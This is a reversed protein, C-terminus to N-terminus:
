VSNIEAFDFLPENKLIDQSLSVLFPGGLVTVAQPKRSKIMQVIMQVPQFNVMNLQFGYVDAEVAAAANIQAPGGSAFCQQFVVSYGKKRLFAGVHALGLPLEQEYQYDGELVVNMLAVRLGQRFGDAM